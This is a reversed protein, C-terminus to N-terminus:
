IIAAVFHREIYVKTVTSMKSLHKQTCTILLKATLTNFVTSSIDGQKTELQQRVHRSHKNDDPTFNDTTM